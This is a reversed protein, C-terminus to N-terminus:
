AAHRDAVAAPGIHAHELPHRNGGVQLLLELPLLPACSFAIDWITNRSSLNGGKRWRYSRGMAAFTDPRARIAPM